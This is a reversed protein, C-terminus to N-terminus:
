TTKFTGGTGWPVLVPQPRSINLPITVELRGRSADDARMDVTSVLSVYLTISHRTIFRLIEEVYREVANRASTGKLLAFYVVSNDLAIHFAGGKAELAHDLVLVKAAFAERDAIPVATSSPWPISYLVSAEDDASLVAAGFGWTSADSYHIASPPAAPPSWVIRLPLITRFASLEVLVSEPLQLWSGLTVKEYYFARAVRRLQNIVHRFLCWPLRTVHVAWNMIGVLRFFADVRIRGHGMLQGVFSETKGTWKPDLGFEKKELDVDVGLLVARRTPLLMSKEEHIEANVEQCLDRFRSIAQTLEQVNGAWIFNDYTIAKLTAHEEALAGAVTQACWPSFSWGQPVFRFYWAERSGKMVMRFYNRAIDDAVKLQTFWAKMDAHCCWEHPMISDVLEHPTCLHFHPPDTMIDNIPVCNGIPRAHLGGSKPVQFYGISPGMGPEENKSLPVAKRMECLVSLDQRFKPHVKYGGSPVLQPDIREEFKRRDTLLLHVERLDEALQVSVKACEMLKELDVFGQSLADLPLVKGVKRTKPM